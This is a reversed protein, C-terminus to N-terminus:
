FRRTVKKFDTGTYLYVKDIGRTFKKSKSLTNLEKWIFIFYKLGGCYSDTLSIKLSVERRYYYRLDKKVIYIIEMGM